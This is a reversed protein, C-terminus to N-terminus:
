SLIKKLNAQGCAASERAEGIGVDEENPANRNMALLPDRRRRKEPVGISFRRTRCFSSSVLSTLMVDPGATATIM